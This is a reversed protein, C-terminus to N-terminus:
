VLQGQGETAGLVRDYARRAAARVRALRAQLAELSNAGGARALRLQFPEPEHAPDAEDPLAVKLLQSLNQQLTWARSLATTVARPALGAAELSRLVAATNPHLPGHSAHALQLAQAAFEVDVLGGRALKMDWTGSAPREQEMLARMDRADRAV